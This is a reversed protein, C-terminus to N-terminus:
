PSTTTGITRSMNAAFDYGRWDVLRLIPSEGMVTCRRHFKRAEGGTVGAYGAPIGVHQEGFGAEADQGLPVQGARGFLDGGQQGVGFLERAPPAIARPSAPSLQSNNPHIHPVPHAHVSM